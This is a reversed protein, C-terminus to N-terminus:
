KPFLPKNVLFHELVNGYVTLFEGVQNRDGKDKTEVNGDNNGPSNDNKINQCSDWISFM